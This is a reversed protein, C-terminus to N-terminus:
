VSVELQLNDQTVHQAEDLSHIASAVRELRLSLETEISRASQGRIVLDEGSGDGQQLARENKEM